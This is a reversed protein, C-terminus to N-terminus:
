IFFFYFFVSLSVSLSVCVSMSVCLCVCVCREMEGMRFGGKRSRGEVPQRTLIQMPGKSRAHIKDQVMHRLRQYYTVGIFVKGKLMEGTKGNFMKEKGMKGLSYPTAELDIDSVSVGRFPTGDAIKGKMCSVKGLYTELLQGITM